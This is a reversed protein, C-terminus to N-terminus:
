QIRPIKADTIVKHWKEVDKKIYGAFEVPTDAVIELGLKACKEKVDAQQMAKAIERNLLAVIDPPTGAPVLV